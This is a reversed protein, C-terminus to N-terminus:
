TLMCLRKYLVCQHLQKQFCVCIASVLSLDFNHNLYFFINVNIKRCLGLNLVPDGFEPTLRSTTRTGTLNDTFKPETRRQICVGVKIEAQDLEPDLSPSGAQDPERRKM